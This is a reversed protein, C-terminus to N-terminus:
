ELFPDILLTAPEDCFLVGTYTGSVGQYQSGEPGTGEVAAVGAHTTPGLNYIGEEMYASHHPPSDFYGQYQVRGSPTGSWWQIIESCRLSNNGSYYRVRAEARRGNVDTHDLFHNSAMSQVHWYMVWELGPERELSPLGSSVREQNILSLLDEEVQSHSSRGTMEIGAPGVSGLKWYLNAPDTQNIYHDLKVQFQQGAVEVCPFHVDAGDNVTACYPNSDTAWYNGLTWYFGGQDAPNSYRNLEVYFSSNQVTVCPISVTLEADLSSCNEAAYSSGILLLTLCLGKLCFLLQLKM